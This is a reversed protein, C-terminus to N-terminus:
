KSAGKTGGTYFLCALTAEDVSVGLEAEDAEALLMEYEDPIRIVREVAETLNGPDRDALLIRTGSDQLAYHLESEAHRTNLPVVVMGAAPVGVYTELYQHSNASLIAIRDGPQMGAGQLAGALRRCRSELETYTLRVEGDIVATHAGATTLARRLPDLITHM